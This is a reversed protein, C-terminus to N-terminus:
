SANRRTEIDIVDARVDARVDAGVDADTDSGRRPSSPRWAVLGDRLRARARHLRVKAAAETIDLEEAIERHSLGHVDRLVVVRRLREPLNDLARRLRIGVADNQLAFEPDNAERRDALDIVGDIDDHRSDRQRRGM